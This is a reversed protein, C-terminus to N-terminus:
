PATSEPAAGTAEAIERNIQFVIRRLRDNMANTRDIFREFAEASMEENETDIQVQSQIIRWRELDGRLQEIRPAEEEVSGVILDEHLLGARDVFASFSRSFEALDANSDLVMPVEMEPAEQEVSAAPAPLEQDTGEPSDPGSACGAMAGFSLVLLFVRIGPKITM